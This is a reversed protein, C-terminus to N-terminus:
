ESHRQQNKITLLQTIGRHGPYTHCCFMYVYLVYDYIYLM